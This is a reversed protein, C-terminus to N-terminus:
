ELDVSDENRSRFYRRIADRLTIQREDNTELQWLGQWDRKIDTMPDFQNDELIKWRSGYQRDVKKGHWQHIVTGPVFGVDRKIHRTARNQWEHLIAAYNQHVGGSYSHEVKGVLACAMHRDGSGLIGTDIIGGVADIAERRAAWAFGPHWDHYGTKYQANRMYQSVFGNHTKLAQGTPGLDIANEFMQVFMHHQLQQLTEEVWDERAFTVDADIWAVYEWDNPLNQIGINIMNEKHWLEEFTRLQQRWMREGMYSDYPQGKGEADYVPRLLSTQGALDRQDYKNLHSDKSGIYFQRDGFALEVTHLRVNPFREMYTEFKDFLEYRSSYRVPNSIVAIVHLIRNNLRNQM